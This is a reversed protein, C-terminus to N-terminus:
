GIDVGSNAQAIIKLNRNVDMALVGVDGADVTDSTALGMIPTGSDSAVTFASDDISSTGGAGGSITANVDLKGGTVTVAEGGADVIQTLQTGNTQNASTAVGTVAVTGDVTISNGGDQINVASAGSANNITVDGID